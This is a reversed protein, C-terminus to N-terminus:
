TAKILEIVIEPVALSHARHGRLGASCASGTSRPDPRGSRPTPGLPRFRNQAEFARAALDKNAADHRHEDPHCCSRYAYM